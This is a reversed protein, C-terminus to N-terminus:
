AARRAAARANRASRREISSAPDGRWLGESRRDAVARSGGGAAHECRRKVEATQVAHTASGVGLNIHPRPLRLDAFLRDNMDNDYHQGTHVLLARLTPYSEFARLLPAIKMFNPRAGVVCAIPRIAPLEERKM